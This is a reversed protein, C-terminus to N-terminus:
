ILKNHFNKLKCMNANIRLITDIKMPKNEICSSFTHDIKVTRIM